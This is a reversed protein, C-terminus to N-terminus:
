LLNEWIEYSGPQLRSNHHLFHAVHSQFLYTKIKKELVKNKYGYGFIYQQQPCLM